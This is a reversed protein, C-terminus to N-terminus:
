ATKKARIREGFFTLVRTWSDEAAAKDYSAGNANFFSHRAGPYIKFEAPKKAAIGGEEVKLIILEKARLQNVAEARDNAQITGQITKGTQDKAAYQFTAM